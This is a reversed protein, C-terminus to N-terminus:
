INPVPEWCSKKVGFEHLWRFQGNSLLVAHLFIIFFEASLTGFSLELAWSQSHKQINRAGRVTECNKAAESWQLSMGRYMGLIPLNVTTRPPQSAEGLHYDLFTCNFSPPILWQLLNGGIPSGWFSGGIAPKKERFIGFFSHFGSQNPPLGM